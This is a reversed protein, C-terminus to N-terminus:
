LGFGAVFSLWSITFKQIQIQINWILYWVHPPTRFKGLKRSGKENKIREDILWFTPKVFDTKQLLSSRPLKVLFEKSALAQLHYSNVQVFTFRWQLAVKARKRFLSDPFDRNKYFVVKLSNKSVHFWDKLIPPELFWNASTTKTYPLTTLLM